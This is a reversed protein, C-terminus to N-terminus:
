RESFLPMIIGDVKIIALKDTAHREGSHYKEGPGEAASFYESYETYMSLNALLSTVLLSTLVWVKLRNSKRAPQQIIVTPPPSQAPSAAPIVAGQKQQEPTM